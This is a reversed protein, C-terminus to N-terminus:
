IDFDAYMEFCSHLYPIGVKTYAERFMAKANWSMAHLRKRRSGLADGALPIHSMDHGGVVFSRVVYALVALVVAGVVSEMRAMGSFYRKIEVEMQSIYEYFVACNNYFVKRGM